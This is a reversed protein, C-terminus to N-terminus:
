DARRTQECHQRLQDSQIQFLLEIGEHTLTKFVPEEGQGFGRREM